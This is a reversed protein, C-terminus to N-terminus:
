STMKMNTQCPSRCEPCNTPFTMVEGEIDELTYEDENIPQLINSENESYIGLLNNQEMTRKFYHIECGDDKQPTRPNQICTNGSIDEFRIMFPESVDKLSKLKILFQNIQEYEVPHEQKRRDQDKELGEMSRNIIGEM